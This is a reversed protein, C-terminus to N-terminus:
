FRIRPRFISVRNKTREVWLRTETDIESYWCMVFIVFEAFYFWGTFSFSFMFIIQSSNVPNRLATKSNSNTNNNNSPGTFIQCVCCISPVLNVYTANSPHKNTRLINLVVPNTM